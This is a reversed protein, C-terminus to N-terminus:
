ERRPTLNIKSPTMSQHKSQLLMKLLALGVSRVLQEHDDLLGLADVADVDGRHPVDTCTGFGTRRTVWGVLGVRSGSIRKGPKVGKSEDFPDVQAAVGRHVLLAARHVLVDLEVESAGLCPQCKGSM